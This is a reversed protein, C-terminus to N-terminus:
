QLSLLRQECLSRNCVPMPVLSLRHRLHLKLVDPSATLTPRRMFQPPRRHGNAAKDSTLLPALEQSLGRSARHPKLEVRSGKTHQTAQLFVREQRQEKDIFQGLGHTAMDLIVEVGWFHSGTLSM